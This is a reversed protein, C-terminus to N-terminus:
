CGILSSLSAHPHSSHSSYISKAFLEASCDNPLHLLSILMYDSLCVTDNPGNRIEMDRLIERAALDTEKHKM